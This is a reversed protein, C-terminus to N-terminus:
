VAHGASMGVAGTPGANAKQYRGRAFIVTLASEKDPRRPKPM